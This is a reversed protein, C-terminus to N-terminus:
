CLAHAHSLAHTHSHSVNSVTGSDALLFVKKLIGHKLTPIFNSVASWNFVLCIQDDASRDTCWWNCEYIVRISQKPWPAETATAHDTYTDDARWQQRDTQRDTHSHSQPPSISLPSNVAAASTANSHCLKLLLSVRTVASTFHLFRDPVIAWYLRYRDSLLLRSGGQQISLYTANRFSYQCKKKWKDKM